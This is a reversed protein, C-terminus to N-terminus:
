SILVTASRKASFRKAGDGVMRNLLISSISVWISQVAFSILGIAITVAFYGIIIAWDLANLEMFNVSEHKISM